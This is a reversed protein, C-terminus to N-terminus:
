VNLNRSNQTPTFIQKYKVKFANISLILDELKIKRNVVSLRATIINNGSKTRNTKITTFFTERSTLSQNFTLEIWDMQPIQTNYIKHLLIAPKYELVKSPLAKNCLNHVDIFSVFPNPNTLSTKLARASASLLHQKLDHKLM